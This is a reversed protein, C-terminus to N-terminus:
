MKSKLAVFEVISFGETGHKMKGIVKKNKVDHFISNDPYEKVDYFRLNDPYEKVDYFRSNDPYKNLDSM